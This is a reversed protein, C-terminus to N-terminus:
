YVYQVLLARGEATALYERSCLRALIGRIEAAAATVRDGYDEWWRADPRVVMPLVSGSNSDYIIFDCMDAGTVYLQAQIQHRYRMLYREVDTFGLYPCKIEGIAVAEDDVLEVYDPTAGLWTQTHHTYRQTNIEHDTRMHQNYVALAASEHLVGHATARSGEFDSPIGLARRVSDRIVGARTGWPASGLLSPLQSATLLPMGEIRELEPLQTYMMAQEEATLGWDPLEVDYVKTRQLEQVAVAAETAERIRELGLERQRARERAQETSSGATAQEASGGATTPTAVGARELLNVGGASGICRRRETTAGPTGGLTSGLALPHAGKTSGPLATDAHQHQYHCVKGLSIGASRGATTNNTSDNM